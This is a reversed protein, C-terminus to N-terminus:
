GHNEFLCNQMTVDSANFKTTFVTLLVALYTRSQDMNEEFNGYCYSVTRKIIGINQLLQSGLITIGTRCILVIEREYVM